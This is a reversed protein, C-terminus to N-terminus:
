LIAIVRGRHACALRLIRSGCIVWTYAAGIENRITASSVTSIIITWWGSRQDSRQVRTYLRTHYYPATKQREWLEVLIEYTPWERM